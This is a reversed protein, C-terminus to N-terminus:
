HLGSDFVLGNVSVPRSGCPTVSCLANQNTKFYDERGETIEWRIKLMIAMPEEKSDSTNPVVTLIVQDSDLLHVQIGQFIQM